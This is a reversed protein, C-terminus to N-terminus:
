KAPVEDGAFNTHVLRAHIPTLSQAYRRFTRNGVNPWIFTPYYLYVATAERYRIELETSSQWKLHIGLEPDSAPVGSLYAIRTCSSQGYAPTASRRLCVRASHVGHADRPVDVLVADAAGDPSRAASIEASQVTVRNTLLGLGVIAVGTGISWWVIRATSLKSKMRDPIEIIFEKTQSLCSLPHSLSEQLV